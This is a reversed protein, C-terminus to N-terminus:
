LWLTYWMCQIFFYRGSCKPSLITASIITTWINDSKYNNWQGKWTWQQLM